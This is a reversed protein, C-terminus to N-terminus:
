NDEKLRRSTLHWAGCKPCRYCRVECRTDMYSPSRQNKMLAMTAAIRDRFRRKTCIDADAM